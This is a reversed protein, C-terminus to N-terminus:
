SSRGALKALPGILKPLRARQTGALILGVAALLLLVGAFLREGTASLPGKAVALASPTGGSPAASAPQTGAAAASPAATTPAPGPSFAGPSLGAGTTAASPAITGAAVTGASVTGAFAGTGAPLTAGAGAAGPEIGFSKPTPDDLAVRFPQQSTVDPVLAVNLTAGQLEQNPTLTWTMTEASTSGPVKGATKHLTPKVTDKGTCSYAPSINGPQDAGPQWQSLATCALLPPTGNAATNAMDVTLTLKVDAAGPSYSAGHVTAPLAYQVAAFALIGGNSTQPVAGAAPTGSVKSEGPTFSAELENASTTSPGAKTGYTATENWWACQVPQGATACTPTAATAGTAGASGTKASGTSAKPTGPTTTGSVPSAAKAAPAILADVLLYCGTAALLGSAALRIWHGPRRTAASRPPTTDHVDHM